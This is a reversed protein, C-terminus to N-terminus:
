GKKALNIVPIDHARAVRIAHATGGREENVTYCLVFDVPDFEAFRYVDGLDQGLIIQVNRGLLNRASKKCLHWAPHHKAAILKAMPTVNEPRFVDVKGRAHRAGTEFADDSGRAGGSRLRWGLAALVAAIEKLNSWVAPEITRNGIGAYKM